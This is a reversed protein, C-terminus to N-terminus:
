YDGYSTGHDVASQANNMGCGCPGTHGDDPDPKASCDDAHGVREILWSLARAIDKIDSTM